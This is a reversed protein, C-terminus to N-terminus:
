PLAPQKAHHHGSGSSGTREEAPLLVRCDQLFSGHVAHQEQRRCALEGHSPPCCQWRIWPPALPLRKGPWHLNRRRPHLWNPGRVAPLEQHRMQGAQRTHVTQHHDNDRETHRLPM